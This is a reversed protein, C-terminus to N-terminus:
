FCDTSTKQLPHAQENKFSADQFQCHNIPPFLAVIFWEGCQAGLHILTFTFINHICSSPALMLFFFAFIPLFCFCCHFTWLLHQLIFAHTIIALAICGCLTVSTVFHLVPSLFSVINSAVEFSICAKDSHNLCCCFFTRLSKEVWPIPHEVFAMQTTLTHWENQSKEFLHFKM